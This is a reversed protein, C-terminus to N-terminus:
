TWSDDDDYAITVDMFDLTGSDHDDYALTVDRFGKTGKADDDYALTVDRFDLDGIVDDDYALTVDRFDLTRSADDDYALTLDKTFIYFFKGQIRSEKQYSDFGQIVQHLTCVESPTTYPAIKVRAKHLTLQLSIAEM